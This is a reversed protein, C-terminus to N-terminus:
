IICTRRNEADHIGGRETYSNRRNRGISIERRVEGSKKEDLDFLEIFPGIKKGLEKFSKLSSVIRIAQNNVNCVFVYEKFSALSSPLNFSASFGGQMGQAGGITYEQFSDKTLM